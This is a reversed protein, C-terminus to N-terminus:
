TSSALNTWSSEGLRTSGRPGERFPGSDIAMPTSSRSSTGFVRVWIVEGTPSLKAAFADGSYPLAEPPLETGLDGFTTGAVVVNGQADLAIARAGESAASSSGFETVWTTSLETGDVHLRAVVVDMGAGNSGNEALAGNSSGALYIAGQDDAVVANLYDDSAVTGLTTVFAQSTAPQLPEETTPEDSPAADAAPPGAADVVVQAVGAEATADPYSAQNASCACGFVLALLSIRPM